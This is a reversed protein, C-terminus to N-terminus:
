LPDTHLCEVHHNVSWREHKIVSLFEDTLEADSRKEADRTERELQLRTQIFVSRTFGRRVGSREAHKEKRRCSHDFVKTSFM